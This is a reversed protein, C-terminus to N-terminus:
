SSGPARESGAAPRQWSSVTAAELSAELNRERPYKQLLFQKRSTFDDQLFFFGITSTWSISGALPPTVTCAIVSSSKPISSPRRAGLVGIVLGFFGSRRIFLIFFTIADPPRLSICWLVLIFSRVPPRGCGVAAGDMRASLACTVGSCHSAYDAKCCGRGDWRRGGGGM